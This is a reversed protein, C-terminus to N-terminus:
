AIISESGPHRHSIDNIYIQEHWPDATWTVHDSMGTTLLDILTTRRGALPM